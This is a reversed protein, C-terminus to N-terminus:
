NTKIHLMGSMTGFCVLEDKNNKLAVKCQLKGHRFMIKEAAVFVKENPLVSKKFKINSETLFTFMNDFDNEGEQIMLYIGFAAMGIQGMIETLIIGPTIPYNPFHGKYFYADEKLFFNGEIRTEDLFTIEDIFRFPDKQPMKSLVHEKVSSYEM